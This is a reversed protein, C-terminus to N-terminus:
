PPVRRAVIVTVAVVTLGALVNRQRKYRVAQQRWHSTLARENTFQLGANEARNRASALAISDQVHRQDARMRYHELMNIRQLLLPERQRHKDLELLDVAVLRAQWL